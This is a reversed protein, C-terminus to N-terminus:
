KPGRWDSSVQQAKEVVGSRRTSHGVTIAMEAGGSTRAVANDSAFHGIPSVPSPGQQTMSRTLALGDDGGISLDTLSYAYRGSRMDVGGGSIVFKDPPPALVSSGTYVASTFVPSLGFLIAVAVAVRRIM